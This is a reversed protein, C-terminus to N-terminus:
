ETFGNNGPDFGLVRPGNTRAAAADDWRDAIDELTIYGSAIDQSYADPIAEPPKALAVNAAMPKPPRTFSQLVWPGCDQALIAYAMKASTEQCLGQLDALERLYNIDSIRM